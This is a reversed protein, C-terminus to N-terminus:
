RSRDLRRVVPRVAVMVGLVLLAVLLPSTLVLVGTQHHRDVLSGVRDFLWFTLAGTVLMGVAVSVQRAYQRHSQPNQRGTVRRCIGVLPMVLAAVLYFITGPGVPIGPM